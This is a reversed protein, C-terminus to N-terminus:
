APADLIGVPLSALDVPPLTKTDRALESGCGTCATVTHELPAGLTGARVVTTEPQHDCHLVTGCGGCRVPLVTDDHIQVHQKRQGCTPQTCVLVALPKGPGTEADPNGFVFGHAAEVDALPNDTEATM